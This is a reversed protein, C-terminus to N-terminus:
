PGIDPAARNNGEPAPPPGAPEASRFNDLVVDDRDFTAGCDYCVCDDDPDGLTANGNGTRRYIKSASGCEPCTYVKDDHPHDLRPTM